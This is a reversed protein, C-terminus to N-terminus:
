GITSPRKCSGYDHGPKEAHASEPGFCFSFHVFFESLKM